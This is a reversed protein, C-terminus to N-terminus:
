FFTLWIDLKRKQEVFKREEERLIAEAYNHLERRADGDRIEQKLRVYNKDLFDMFFSKQLLRNEVSRIHEILSEVDKSSSVEIAAEETTESGKELQKRRKRLLRLSVTPVMTRSTQLIWSASGIFSKYLGPLLKELYGCHKFLPYNLLDGNKMLVTSLTKLNKTNAAYDYLFVLMGKFTPVYVKAFPHKRKRSESVDLRILNREDLNRIALGASSLAMDTEEHVDYITKPEGTIIRDLITLSNMPIKKM